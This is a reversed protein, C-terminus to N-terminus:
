DAHMSSALNARLRTRTAEDDPLVVRGDEDRPAAALDVGGLLAEVHLHLDIARRAEHEVDFAVDVHIPDGAPLCAVVEVEEGGITATGELRLACQTSAALLLDIGEYSGAAVDRSAIRQPGALLDVAIPEAHEHEVPADHADDGHTVRALARRGVGPDRALHAHDHGHEDPEAKGVPGHLAVGDLVLTATRFRVGASTGGEPVLSVALTGRAAAGEEGACASLCLALATAITRRRM